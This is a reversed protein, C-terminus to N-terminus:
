SKTRLGPEVFDDEPIELDTFHRRMGDFELTWLEQSKVVPDNRHDDWWEDNGLSKPSIVVYVLLERGLNKSFQIVREVKCSGYMPLEAMDGARPLKFGKYVKRLQFMGWHRFLANPTGNPHTVKEIIPAPAIVYVWRWRLNTM